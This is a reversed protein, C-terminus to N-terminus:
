YRLRVSAIALDFEPEFGFTPMVSTIFFILGTHEFIVASELLSEPQNTCLIAKEGAVVAEKITDQLCATVGQVWGDLTMGEPKSVIDVTISRRQDDTSRFQLYREVTGSSPSPGSLDQFELDSPRSLSFGLQPDTYAVWGSPVPAATVAPSSPTPSQFPSAAPTGTAVSQPQDDGSDGCAFALVAILGLVPLIWLRSVAAAAIIWVAVFRINLRLSTVRPHCKLTM